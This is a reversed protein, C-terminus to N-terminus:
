AGRARALENRLLSAHRQEQAILEDLAARADGSEAFPLLGQYFRVADDEMSVALALADVESTIRALRDLPAEAGAFVTKSYIQELAQLSAEEAPTRPADERRAFYTEEFDRVHDEEDAALEAFVRVVSPDLTMERARRYFALGDQELRVAARYIDAFTWAYGIAAGGKSERNRSQSRDHPASRRATM